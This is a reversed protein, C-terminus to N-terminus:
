IRRDRGEWYPARMEAKRIKGVATKPLAGVFRVLRPRKHRAIRGACFEVLAEAELVMGEKLVVHAAPVEGFREDPIGFVACELVAEHAYIANEIEVPYINEGGSIIMDKSRDLLYIFGDEDVTAVDGTWLWGDGCRFLAATQEPDGYYETLLHEGRTVVEGIEGPAVPRGGPDVVATEVGIAPCGVSALKERPHWAQRIAIPGTESQGLHETFSTQPLAAMAAEAVSLPMPAGAYDISRLTALRGPDFAPNKILDGIQTPVLFVATVGHREAAAIFAEPDWGPMLVVTLGLMICLQFWVYLGATHFLPTVAAALDYERVGMQIAGTVNNAYRARHSVLVAKPRGTTGGTFTIALPDDPAIDVAPPTAPRDAIADWFATAGPLADSEGIALVTEIRDTQALAEAATAAFAAQVILLRVEAQELMGAIDAATSRISMNALVVGAKACGFYAVAYAIDNASLIAAKDGKALGHATLAHAFRNSAAELERYTMAANGAILATKQPLRAASCRLIDGILM